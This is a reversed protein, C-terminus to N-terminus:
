FVDSLISTNNVLSWSSGQFWLQLIHGHLESWRDWIWPTQGMGGFVLRVSTGIPRSHFGSGMLPVLCPEAPHVCRWSLHNILHHDASSSAASVALCAKIRVLRSAYIGVAGPAINELPCSRQENSTFLYTTWRTTPTPTELAGIM